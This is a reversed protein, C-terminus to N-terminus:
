YFSNCKLCSGDVGPQGMGSSPSDWAPPAREFHTWKEAGKFVKEVNCPSLPTATDNTGAFAMVPAVGNGIARAVGEGSGRARM